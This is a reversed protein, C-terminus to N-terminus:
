TPTIPAGDLPMSSTNLLNRKRYGLNPFQHLFPGCTLISIVYFGIILLHMMNKDYGSPYGNSQATIDCNSKPSVPTCLAHTCVHVCDHLLMTVLAQMTSAHINIQIVHSMVVGILLKAMSKTFIIM